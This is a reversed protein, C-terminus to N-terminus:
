FWKRKLKTANITYKQTNTGNKKMVLYTTSLFDAQGNPFTFVLIYKGSLGKKWFDSAPALPSTSINFGALKVQITSNQISDSQENHNPFPKFKLPQVNNLGNM